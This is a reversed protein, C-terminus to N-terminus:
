SEVVSASTGDHQVILLRDAIEKLGETHTILTVPVDRSVEFLLDGITEVGSKDLGDFIEDAFFQKIPKLNRSAAIDRFALLLSLDLRKKQGKSAGAYTDTCSPIVGEVVMEEKVKDSSKLQRVASLSVQAGAGLLRHAYATARSTIEPIQAEILFSKLGKNGFAEALFELVSVEGKVREIVAETERRQQELSEIEAEQKETTEQRHTVWERLLKIHELLKDLELKWVEVERTEEQLERELDALRHNEEKLPLVLADIQDRLWTEDAQLLASETTLQSYEAQLAGIVSHARNKSLTQQCTPCEAGALKEFKAIRRQVASMEGKVEAVAAEYERLEETLKSKRDQYIRAARAYARALRSDRQKEENFDAEVSELRKQRRKYVIQVLRYKLRAQQLAEEVNGRDQDTQKAEELARKCRDLTARVGELKTEKRTLETTKHKLRRKAIKEAEGYVELGLLTELIQKRGSDTTSFFSKVDERAGFAVSNSFTVYDMGLLQTIALDTQPNTGRSCDEGDVILHVNNKHKRHKRHRAVKIVRESTHLTVSVRAGGKSGLRVVEDKAYRERVCRGFLAWAVGDILFSKGAGNSDCGKRGEMRGEIVTLGPRSFDVTVDAFPGFNQYNVEGIQFV